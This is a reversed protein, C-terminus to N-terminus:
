KQGWDIPETFRIYFGFPDIIRFDKGGWRKQVLEQVLCNQVYRRVTKYYKDINSVPITIEVSHGKPTNKPFHGFHSHDHIRHDGGYFNLFTNGIEDERRLVLSGLYESVPEEQIPHFELYAYFNKALELDPVHLQIILNNNITPIDDQNEM